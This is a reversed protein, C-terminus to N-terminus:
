LGQSLSGPDAPLNWRLVVASEHEWGLISVTATGLALLRGDEPPLALWRAALIRLMHGHGFALVDGSGALVRAVVRDARAAVASITEGGRPGDSWISWGPRDERIEATTLGEDAGYDWERLDDDVKARDGFGALRATDLARRM